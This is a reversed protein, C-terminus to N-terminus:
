PRPLSSHRRTSSTAIRPTRRVPAPGCRVSRQRELRASRQSASVRLSVSSPRTRSGGKAIAAKGMLSRMERNAPDAELMKELRGDVETDVRSVFFSAVSRVAVPLKARMRAELARLYADIVAEYAAQAFILTVNVNVGSTILQEIASYGEVTAPVKVLTNPRDV